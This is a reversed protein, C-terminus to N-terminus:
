ADTEWESLFMRLEDPTGGLQRLHNSDRLIKELGAECMYGAGGLAQLSESAAACLLEHTEARVAVVTGLSDDAVPLRALQDALLGVTRLVGAARALMLRVAAHQRIPAGGQRRLAAYERAKDYGQQVAGWGIAILAQADLQFAAAYAAVAAQHGDAVQRPAAATPQWSWSLTENLGHSHSCAELQLDERAWASWRLQCRDDLCPVLLLQWDQAAHFLLPKPEPRGPTFFYDQLLAQDDATLPKAQLLRALSTRALGYSGQLCVVAPPGCDWGLRRRLFDGLARQHFHFAVGASAQAISRLAASGFRLWGTGGTDEWLGAGADPTPNLLGFEMAQQTLRALQVADLTQEPRAVLPQVAKQRFRQVEALLLRLDAETLGTEPPADAASARDSLANDPSRGNM